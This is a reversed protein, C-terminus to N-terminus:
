TTNIFERIMYKLNLVYSWLHAASITYKRRLITQQEQWSDETIASNKNELTLGPCLIQKLRFSSCFNKMIEFASSSKPKRIVVTFLMKFHGKQLLQVPCYYALKLMYWTILHILRPPTKYECWWMWLIYTIREWFDKLNWGQESTWLTNQFELCDRLQSGAGKLSLCLPLLPFM